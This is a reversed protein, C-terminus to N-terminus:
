PFGHCEGTRIFRVRDGQGLDAQVRCADACSRSRVRAPEGTMRSVCLQYACVEIPRLLVCCQRCTLTSDALASLLEEGAHGIHSPQHKTQLEEPNVVSWPLTHSAM